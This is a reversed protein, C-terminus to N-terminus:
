GVKLVECNFIEVNDNYMAFSHKDIRKTIIVSFLTIIPASAVNEKGLFM